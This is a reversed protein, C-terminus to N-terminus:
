APATFSTSYDNTGYKADAWALCAADTDATYEDILANAFQNGNDGLLENDYVYITTM